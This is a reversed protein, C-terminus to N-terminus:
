SSDKCSCSLWSGQSSNGQMDIQMENGKSLLGNQINAKKRYHAYSFPEDKGSLEDSDYRQKVGKRKDIHRYSM